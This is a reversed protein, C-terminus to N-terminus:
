QLPALAEPNTSIVTCLLELNITKTCKKCKNCAPAISLACQWGGALVLFVTVTLSDVSMKQSTLEKLYIKTFYSSANQVKYM